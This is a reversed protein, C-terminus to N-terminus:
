AIAKWLFFIGAAAVGAGAVRLARQGWTWRHILGISIGVAHLCGTAMVFGISFLLANQGPPLESGHAYGHFLAFFSVLVAAIALPPRLELLVVAGLMVASAAIGIETGALPLGMLGLMGGMAMMIPFAVPLLWIAPAGLQAGWLGVAIMAVVHDLGSIPHHFGTLFSIAQGKVPHAFAAQAWFMVACLLASLQVPLRCQFPKM